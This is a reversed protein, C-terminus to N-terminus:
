NGGSSLCPLLTRRLVSFWTGITQRPNVVPDELEDVLIEEVNRCSTYSEVVRCAIVRHSLAPQPAGLSWNCNLFFLFCLYLHPCVLLM